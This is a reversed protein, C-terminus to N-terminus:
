HWFRRQSISIVNPHDTMSASIEKNTHDVEIDLHLHLWRSPWSTYGFTFATMQITLKYIWISLATSHDGETLNYQLTWHECRYSDPSSHWVCRANFAFDTSYYHRETGFVQNRWSWTSFFGGTYTKREPYGQFLVMPVMWVANDMQIYLNVMWVANDMQIYFNVMWIVANVSPYLLQGNLHSCKYKSICISWGFSQM